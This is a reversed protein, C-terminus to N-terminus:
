NYLDETKIEQRNQYVRNIENSFNDELSNAIHVIEALSSQLTKEVELLCKDAYNIAGERMEIVFERVEARKIESQENALKVINHESVLKQVEEEALKIIKTAKHEADKQIKNANEIIKLAEKMERPLSYKIESLIEFAEEKDFAKSGGFLSSPKSEDILQYLDDLLDNLKAYENM